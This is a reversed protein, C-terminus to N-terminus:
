ATSVLSFAQVPLVSDKGKYELCTWDEGGCKWGDIVVRAQITSKVGKGLIVAEMQKVHELHSEYKYLLGCIYM